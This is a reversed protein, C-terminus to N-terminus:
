TDRSRSARSLTDDSLLKRVIGAVESIRVPKTILYPVTTKPFMVAFERSSLYFATLFCVKVSTDLQVLRRYLEFGNMRPMAIDTIVIDYEGPRYSKLAALPDNFASVSFGRRELGSKFLAVIDEDDDVFLISRRETDEARKHLDGTGKLAM